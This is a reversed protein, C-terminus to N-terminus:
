ELQELLDSKDNFFFFFFGQVWKIIVKTELLKPKPYNGKREKEGM